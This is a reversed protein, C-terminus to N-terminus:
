LNLTYPTIAQICAKNRQWNVYIVNYRSDVEHAHEIKRCLWFLRTTSKSFFIYKTKTKVIGYLLYKRPGKKQKSLFFYLRFCDVGFLRSLM